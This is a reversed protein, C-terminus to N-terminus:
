VSLELGAYVNGNVLIYSSPNVNRMCLSHVKVLYEFVIYFAKSDLAEACADGESYKGKGSKLTVARVEVGVVLSGRM